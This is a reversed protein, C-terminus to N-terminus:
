QPISPLEVFGETVKVPPHTLTGSSEHHTFTEVTRGPCGFVGQGDFLGHQKEQQHHISLRPQQLLSAQATHLRRARAAAVTM